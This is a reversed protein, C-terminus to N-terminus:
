ADSDIVVKAKVSAVVTMKVGVTIAAVSAMTTVYYVDVYKV